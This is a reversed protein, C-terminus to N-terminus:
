RNGWLIRIGYCSERTTKSTWERQMNCDYILLQDRLFILLCTRDIKHVTASHVLFIPIHSHGKKAFGRTKSKRAFRCPHGGQTPFMPIMLILPFILCGWLNVLMFRFRPSKAYKRDKRSERRYCPNLDGQPRWSLSRGSLSRL